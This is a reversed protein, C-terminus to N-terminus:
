KQNGEFRDLSYAAPDSTLFYGEETSVIAEGPKPTFSVDEDQTLNARKGNEFRIYGNPFNVEVLRSGFAPNYDEIRVEGQRGGSATLKEAPQNSIFKVVFFLVVVVFLCATLEKTM